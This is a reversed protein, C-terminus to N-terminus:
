GKAVFLSLPASAPNHHSPSHQQRNHALAATTTQRTRM